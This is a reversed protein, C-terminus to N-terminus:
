RADEKEGVRHFEKHVCSLKVCIWLGLFRERPLFNVSLRVAKFTLSVNEMRPKLHSSRNWACPHNISIASHHFLKRFLRSRSSSIFFLCIVDKTLCDM